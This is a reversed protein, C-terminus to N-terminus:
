QPGQDDDLWRGGEAKEMQDIIRLAETAQSQPVLLRPAAVHPPIGGIAADLYENILQVTIGEAELAARVVYAQPVDRAVYVEVFREM